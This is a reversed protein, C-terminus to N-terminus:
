RTEIRGRATATVMPKSAPHLIGKHLGKGFRCANLGTAAASRWHGAPVGQGCPASRPPARSSCVGLLAARAASAPSRGAGTAAACCRPSEQEEEGGGSLGLFRLFWLFADGHQLAERRLARQAAPSSQRGCRRAARWGRVAATVYFCVSLVM